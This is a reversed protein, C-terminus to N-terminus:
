PPLSSFARVAQLRGRGPRAQRAPQARCRPLHRPGPRGGAAQGQLPPPPAQVDGQAQRPRGPAGQVPPPGGRRAQAAPVASSFFSCSSSAPPRAARVLHPNDPQVALWQEVGMVIQLADAAPTGEGSVLAIQELFQSAEAHTPDAETGPGGTSTADANATSSGSPARDVVLRKVRDPAFGKRCLPCTSPSLAALCTRCFIHGCSIAHPANDATTCLYGDLCVDCRSSPHLVLM